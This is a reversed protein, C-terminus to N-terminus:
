ISDCNYKQSSPLWSAPHCSIGGCLSIEDEHSTDFLDNKKLYVLLLFIQHYINVKYGEQKIFQV